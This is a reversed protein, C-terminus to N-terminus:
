WNCLNNTTFLMNADDIMTNTKNCLRSPTEFSSNKYSEQLPLPLFLLVIASKKCKWHESVTMMLVCVVQLLKLALDTYVQWQTILQVSSRNSTTCAREKRGWEADSSQQRAQMFRRKTLCTYTHTSITAFTTCKRDYHNNMVLANHAFTVECGTVKRGYRESTRLAIQALKREREIIITMPAAFIASASAKCVYLIWDRITTYKRQTKSKHHIVIHGRSGRTYTHTSCRLKSTDSHLDLAEVCQRGAM